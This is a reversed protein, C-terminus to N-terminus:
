GDNLQLGNVTGSLAGIAVRCNQNDKAVLGTPTAAAVIIPLAKM